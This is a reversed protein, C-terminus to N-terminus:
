DRFIIGLNGSYLGLIFDADGRYHTHKRYHNHDHHYGHHNRHKHHRDRYGHKYHKRYNHRKGYEVHRGYDRQDRRQHSKHHSKGRDQQYQDHRGRDNNGANVIMPTSALGFSLLAILPLKKLTSYLKM